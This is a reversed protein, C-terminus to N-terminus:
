GNKIEERIKMLTKGLVNKGQIEKCKACYCNGWYNDHWTTGEELYEDGTDLLKQKLVPDKFKEKLIEYMIGDKVEEWDDRLSVRRGARKAEGPTPLAAIRKRESIDLTKVAQFAHEVTPYSIGDYILNSKSFNSLFFYKNDFQNIM